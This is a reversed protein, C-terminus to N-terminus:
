TLHKWSRRTVISYIAQNSVGKMVAWRQCLQRAPSPGIWRNGQVIKDVLEWEARMQRVEDDTFPSASQEGRARTEKIHRRFAPDEYKVNLSATVKDIMAQKIEPDTMRTRLVDLHEESLKKGKHLASMRDSTADREAQTWVKNPTKGRKVASIKQSTAESVVRGSNGQGGRTRNCGIGNYDPDKVYTHREAIVRKEIDLIALEDLGTKVIVRRQGFKNVIEVHRENTRKLKVVRDDDGKGVYFCRPEVELTWDEYVHWQVM